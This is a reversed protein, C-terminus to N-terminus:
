KENKDTSQILRSSSFTCSTDVVKFGVLKVCLFSKDHDLTMVVM